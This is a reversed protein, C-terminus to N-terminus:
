TGEHGAGLAKDLVGAAECYARATSTNAHQRQARDAARYCLSATRLSVLEETARALNTELELVTDIHNKAAEVYAIAVSSVFGKVISRTTAGSLVTTVLDVIEAETPENDPFLTAWAWLVAEREIKHESM